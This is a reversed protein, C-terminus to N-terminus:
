SEINYSLNIAKLKLTANLTFHVPPVGAIGLSLPLCVRCPPPAGLFCLLRSAFYGVINFTQSEINYSLDISMLEIHRSWPNGQSIVRHM